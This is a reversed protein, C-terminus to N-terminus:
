LSSHCLKQLNPLLPQFLNPPQRQLWRNMSPPELPQNM